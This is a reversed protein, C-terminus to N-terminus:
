NCTDQLFRDILYGNAGYLEIGDFGAGIANTAAQVYQQIVSKIGDVTLPVPQPHESDVSINSSSTVTIKDKEAVDGEVTRRLAWLQCFIYSGDAHV